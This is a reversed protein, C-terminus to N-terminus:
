ARRVRRRNQIHLRARRHRRHRPQAARGDPFAGPQNPDFNPLTAMALIEGTRPRMVIASISVPSHQQLADALATEVINQIATDITLVINMGDHARCTKTAYAVLERKHRDTETM